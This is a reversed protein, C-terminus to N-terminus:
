GARLLLSLALGRPILGVYVSLRVRQGPLEDIVYHIRSFWSLGRSYERISALSRRAVWSWPVEVWEEALGARRTSGRLKGDDETFVMPSLGLARNFRSTDAVFPWLEDATVGLEFVWFRELPRGKELM